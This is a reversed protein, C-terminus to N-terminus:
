FHIPFIFQLVRALTRHVAVDRRDEEVVDLVRGQLGACDPALDAFRPYPDLQEGVVVDHVQGESDHEGLVPEDNCDNM